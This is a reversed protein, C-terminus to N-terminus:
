DINWITRHVKWDGDPQRALIRMLKGSSHSEAGGARPRTTGSFRGWEFAYDGVITVEEFDLRYSMTEVERSAAALSQELAARGSAAGRMVPGGPPLAVIDDSWLAALEEANGARAAAMDRQHLREIAARDARERETTSM